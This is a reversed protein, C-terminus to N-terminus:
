PCREQWADLSRHKLLANFGLKAAVACAGGFDTTEDTYETMFVPKGREVFATEVECWGQAYCSSILAWDFLPELELTQVHDNTLGIRLGLAHASEALWANYSRQDEASLQFGVNTNTFADVNNPQIGDFGKDKCLQMRALMIPALADRERIDLWKEEPGNADNGTVHAPIADKDPVFAQWYGASVHCIVQAGLAKLEAVQTATTRFLDVFYTEARLANPDLDGQLQWQWTRLVPESPSKLRGISTQEVDCAFLLLAGCAVIRTYFKNVSWM